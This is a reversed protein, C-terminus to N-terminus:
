PLEFSCLVIGGNRGIEKTYKIWRAKPSENEPEYKTMGMGQLNKSITEVVKQQANDMEKKTKSSDKIIEELRQKMVELVEPTSMTRELKLYDNELSNERDAVAENDPTTQQKRFKNGLSNRIKKLLEEAKQEHKLGEAKIYEREEESTAQALLSLYVFYRKGQIERLEQQRDLYYNVWEQNMESPPTRVSPLIPYKPIEKSPLLLNHFCIRRKRELERKLADYEDRYLHAQELSMEQGERDFYISEALALKETLSQEKKQYYLRQWKNLEKLETEDLTEMSPYRAIETQKVSETGVEPSPLKSRLNQLEKDMLKDIQTKVVDEKHQRALEVTQKKKFELERLAQEAKQQQEIRQAREREQRESEIQRNKKIAEEQAQLRLREGEVILRETESKEQEEQIAKAEEENMRAQEQEYEERLRQQDYEQARQAQQRAITELEKQEQIMQLHIEFDDKLTEELEASFVPILPKNGSLLERITRYKPSSERTEKTFSMEKGPEGTVEKTNIPSASVVAQTRTSEAEPTRKFNSLQLSQPTVNETPHINGAIPEEMRGETPFIWGKEDIKIYLGREDTTFLHGSHRDLMFMDSNYKAKLSDLRLMLTPNGDPSLEDSKYTPIESLRMGGPLYFDPEIKKQLTSTKVEDRVLTMAPVTVVTNGQITQTFQTLPNTMDTYMGAATVQRAGGKDSLSEPTVHVMPPIYTESLARQIRKGTQPTRRDLSDLVAQRYSIFASHSSPVPAKKVTDLTEQTQDFYKSIPTVGRARGGLEEYLPTTVGVQESAPREVSMGQRERPEPVPISLPRPVDYVPGGTKLKYQASAQQCQYAKQKIYKTIEQGEETDVAETSTTRYPSVPVSSDDEDETRQRKEKRSKVVHPTRQYQKSRTTLKDFTDSATPTAVTFLESDRSRSRLNYKRKHSM